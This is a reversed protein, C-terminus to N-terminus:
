SRGNRVSDVYSGSAMRSAILRGAARLIPPEDGFAASESAAMWAQRAQPALDIPQILLQDVQQIAARLDRDCIPWILCSWPSSTQDAARSSSTMAWASAALRPGSGGSVRRIM